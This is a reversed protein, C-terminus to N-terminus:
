LDTLANIRMRAYDSMLEIELRIEWISKEMSIKEANLLEKNFDYVGKFPNFESDSGAEYERKSQYFDDLSYFSEDFNKSKMLKFSISKSLEIMEKIKDM